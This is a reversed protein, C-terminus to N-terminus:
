RKRELVDIISYAIKILIFYFKEFLLFKFDINDDTKLEDATNIDFIKSKIM